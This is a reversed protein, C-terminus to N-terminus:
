NKENKGETEENHRVQYNEDFYDDQSEQKKLEYVNTDLARAKLTYFNELMLKTTVLPVVYLSVILIARTASEVM